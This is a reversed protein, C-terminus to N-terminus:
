KFVTKRHRYRLMLIDYLMKMSDKFFSVKSHPSNIWTVPVEKLTLGLKKAIWILEVDFAFGDLLQRSTIDPIIEARMGKFGCQTDWIGPLILLQMILNFTRGAYERYFPQRETVRSTKLGRSGFVIHIGSQLLPLFTDMEQIPTSLDADSFFVYEGSAAQLGTRIAFGKGRNQDLRIIQHQVGAISLTQEAAQATDDSSGDDVVIIEYGWDKQALFACCKELSKSLRRIENYAPFVLSILPQSM